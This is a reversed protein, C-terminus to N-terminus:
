RKKFITFPKSLVRLVNGSIVRFNESYGIITAAVATGLANGVSTVLDTQDRSKAIEIEKQQDMLVEEHKLEIEKERLKQNQEELDLRRDNEKVQCSIQEHRLNLERDKFQREEAERKRKEEAELKEQEFKQEQLRMSRDAQIMRDIREIESLKEAYGSSLGKDGNPIPKHALSGLTEANKRNEETLIDIYKYEM